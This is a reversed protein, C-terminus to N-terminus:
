TCIRLWRLPDKRKLDQDVRVARPFAVTARVLPYEDVDARRVVRSDDCHPDLLGDPVVVVAHPLSELISDVCIFPAAPGTSSQVEVLLDALIRSGYVEEGHLNSGFM